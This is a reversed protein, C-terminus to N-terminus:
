PLEWKGLSSSPYQFSLCIDPETNGRWSEGKCTRDGGPELLPALPVIPNSSVDKESAREREREREIEIERKRDIKRTTVRDIVREREADRDKGRHM